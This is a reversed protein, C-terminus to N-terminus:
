FGKILGNDPLQAELIVSQNRGRGVLTLDFCGSPSSANATCDRAVEECVGDREHVLSIQSPPTNGLADASYVIVVDIPSQGANVSVDIALGFGEILGTIDGSDCDVETSAHRFLVPYGSGSPSGFVATQQFPGGVPGFPADAGHPEQWKGFVEADADVITSVDALPWTDQKAANPNDQGADGGFAADILSMAGLNGSPETAIPLFRLSIEPANAPVTGLACSVAAGSVSCGGPITAGDWTGGVLTASFALDTITSTGINSFTALFSGPQGPSVLIVESVLTPTIDTGKAAGSPSPAALAAVLLTILLAMRLRPSPHARTM